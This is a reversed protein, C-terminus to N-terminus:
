GDLCVAVRVPAGGLRAHVVATPTPAGDRPAAPGSVPLALDVTGDAFSKVNGAVVNAMEGLADREDAVTVDEPPLGFMVAALERTFGESADICVAGDRDRDGLFTVSAAHSFDIEDAPGDLVVELGVSPAWVDVILEGLDAPTLVM